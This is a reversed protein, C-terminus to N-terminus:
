GEATAKIEQWHEFIDLWAAGQVLGAKVAAVIAQATEKAMGPVTLVRQKPKSDAFFYRPAFEAIMSRELEKRLPHTSKANRSSEELAEDSVKSLHYRIMPLATMLQNEKNAEVAIILETLTM